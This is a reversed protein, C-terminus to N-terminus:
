IAGGSCRKWSACGSTNSDGAGLKASRQLQTIVPYLASARHHPSCQYRLRIHPEAAVREDLFHAALRSKGIGPEGSILM